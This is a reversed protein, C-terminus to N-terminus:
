KLWPNHLPVDMPEFDAVDRTVMTMGHVLATAAILADQEARPDPAHLQACRQAVATDIPRARGHFSPLVQHNLWASLASGQAPDSREKLLVGQELELVTIPM